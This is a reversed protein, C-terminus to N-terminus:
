GLRLWMILALTLIAGALAYPLQARLSHVGDSDVHRERHVPEPPAPAVVATPTYDDTEEAMGSVVQQGSVRQPKEGTQTNSPLVHARPQDPTRLGLPGRVMTRHSPSASTVSDEESHGHSTAFRGYGAALLRGPRDLSPEGPLSDQARDALHVMAKATPATLAPVMASTLATTLARGAEGARGLLAMLDRPGPNPGVMAQVIARTADRVDQDATAQVAALWGWLTVEGEASLWLTNASISGNIQGDAHAAALPEMVASVLAVADEAALQLEGSARHSILRSLPVGLRSQVVLAGTEEDVQLLRPLAPHLDTRQMTTALSADPLCVLVSRGAHGYQSLYWTGVEPVEVPGALQMARIPPLDAM